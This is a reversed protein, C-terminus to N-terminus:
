EGREALGSRPTKPKSKFNKHQMVESFFEQAIWQHDTAFGYGPFLQVAIAAPSDEIVFLVLFENLPQIFGGTLKSAADHLVGGFTQFRM